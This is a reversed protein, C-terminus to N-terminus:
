VAIIIIVVIVIVDSNCGFGSMTWAAPYVMRYVVQRTVEDVVAQACTFRLPTISSSFTEEALIIRM